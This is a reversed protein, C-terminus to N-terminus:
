HNKLMGIIGVTSLAIASVSGVVNLVTMATEYGRSTDENTLSNYERELKIRNIRDRLEQDSKGEANNVFNKRKKSEHVENAITKGIKTGENVANAANKSIFEITSTNPKDKGQKVNHKWLKESAEKRAEKTVRRANDRNIENLIKKSQSSSNNSSLAKSVAVGAGALVAAGSLAAAAAKKTKSSKTKSSKTESEVGYRRKGAATLSGDKNRYRRIGWHMGLIGHHQLIDEDTVRTIVAPM